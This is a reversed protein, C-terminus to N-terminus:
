APAPALGAFLSAWAGPSGLTPPAAPATVSAVGVAQTNMSVGELGISSSTSMAATESSAWCAPAVTTTSLTNAVGSSWFGNSSPASTTTYEVVLCMSPCPRVNPPAIMPVSIAIAVALALSMTALVVILEVLTMGQQRPSSMRFERSHKNEEDIHMHIRGAVIVCITVLGPSDPDEPNTITWGVVTVGALM